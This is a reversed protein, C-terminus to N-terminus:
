RGLGSGVAGPTLDEDPSSRGSVGDRHDAIAGVVESALLAALEAHSRGAEGSSHAASSALHCSVEPGFLRNARMSEAVGYVVMGLLGSRRKLPPSRGVLHWGSLLIQGHDSAGSRMPFALGDPMREGLDIHELRSEVPGNLRVLPHMASLRKRKVYGGDAAPRRYLLLVQIPAGGPARYERSVWSTCHVLEAVDVELQTDSGEWRGMRYPIGDMLGDPYTRAARRMRTLEWGQYGIGMLLALGVLTGALARGGGSEMSPVPDEDGDPGAAASGAPETRELLKVMGLMVLLCVVFMGLGASYHFFGEAIRQSVHTGLVVTATIRLVNVSLVLPVVLLVLVVRTAPRRLGYAGVFLATPLMTILSRIGSCGTEVNAVFSATQIIQGERLLEVGLLSLLGASATTAFHQLPIALWITTAFNGPYAFVLMVSPLAILALARWGGCLTVAGALLCLLSTGRLFLGTRGGYFTFHARTGVVLLALSMFLLIAGPWAPAPRAFALALDRRRDWAVFAAGAVVILSLVVQDDAMWGRVLDRATWAYNAALLVLFATPLAALGSPLQAAPAPEVLEDRGTGSAEENTM